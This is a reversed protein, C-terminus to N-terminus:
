DGTRDGLPDRRAARALVRAPRCGRARQALGPALGRLGLLQGRARAVTTSARGAHREYFDALEHRFIDFSWGDWIANHRVTFLIHEEDRLRLLFARFLPGRELDFPRRMEEHVFAKVQREREDAPLARLDHLALTLESSPAVCQQFANGERRFSTRLAEQRNVM